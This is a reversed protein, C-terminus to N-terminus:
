VELYDLPDGGNALLAAIAKGADLASGGGVAIVLDCAAQRGAAVGARASDITPEGTVAFGTAAVGAGTLAEFVGHAREGRTGTVVLARRGYSAAIEGVQRASGAGFVIRAPTALEFALDAAVDGAGTM